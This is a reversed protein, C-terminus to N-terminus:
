RREAEANYKSFADKMKEINTSGSENLYGTQIAYANIPMNLRTDKKLEGEVINLFKVSEFLKETKEGPRLIENYAYIITSWEGDSTNEIETWDSNPTYSFLNQVKPSDIEETGDAGTSVTSVNARPIKVELYVYIDTEGTNTVEPDKEIEKGPYVTRDEDKLKQWETEKLEIDANGFTFSNIERNTQKLLYALTSGIFVSFVLASVVSLTGIIKKNKM